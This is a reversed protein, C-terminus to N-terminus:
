IPQLRIELKYPLIKKLYQKIETKNAIMYFGVLSIVGLETWLYQLESYKGKLLVFSNCNKINTRVALDVNKQMVDMKATYVGSQM